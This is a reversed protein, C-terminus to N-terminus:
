VTPFTSDFLINTDSILHRVLPPTIREAKKKKTKETKIKKKGCGHLFSSM